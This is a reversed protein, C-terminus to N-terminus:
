LLCSIPVAITRGSLPRIEDGGYAVIGMRTSERYESIFSELHRADHVNAKRSAKVEIPLLAGKAELVFDVEDGSSTRWYHVDPRPLHIERWAMLHQCLLNEFIQEYMGSRELEATTRINTLYCLLGTDNMFLKPSKILRKTRNVFYSHVLQVQFSSQMINLYRHATVHSLAADRALEAENLMRGARLAAIKMLRRYEVLSSIGLLVQVDRELYTRVYGDFWTDRERDTRAFAARPYGGSLGWRGCDLGVNNRAAVVEKVQQPNKALLLEDWPPPVANGTTESATMPLLTLYVARGALSEGVRKM